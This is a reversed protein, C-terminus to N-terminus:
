CGSQSWLKSKITVVTQKQIKWSKVPVKTFMLIFSNMNAGKNNRKHSKESFFLFIFNFLHVNLTKQGETPKLTDICLIQCISGDTNGQTEFCRTGTSWGQGGKPCPLGTEALAQSVGQRSFPRSKWLQEEQWWLWSKTKLPFMGLWALIM